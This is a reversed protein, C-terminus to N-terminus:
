SKFMRGLFGFFFLNLYKLKLGQIVLITFLVFPTFLLHWESSESATSEVLWSFHMLCSTSIAASLAFNWELWGFSSWNIALIAIWFM